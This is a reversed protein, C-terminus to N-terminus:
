ITKLTHLAREEGVKDFFHSAAMTLVPNESALQTKIHKSLPELEGVV